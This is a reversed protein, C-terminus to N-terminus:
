FPLKREYKGIIFAVYGVKLFGALIITLVHAIAQQLLSFHHAFPFSILITFIMLSFSTAMICAGVKTVKRFNSM